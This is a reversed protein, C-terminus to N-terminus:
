VCDDFGAEVIIASEKLLHKELVNIHHCRTQCLGCGVCKGPIVV